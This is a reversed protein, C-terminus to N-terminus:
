CRSRRCSRACGAACMKSTPARPWAFSCIRPRTRLERRRLNRSRDLPTFVFPTTTFSRIGQTVVLVQAKRSGIEATDGLGKSGLRDLYSQDIAVANPISLADLTGQILNWPRLGPGKTDSGIVFVPTTGGGPLRWQAFGILIPAVDAVGKVSLARFRQREDLLSPDEFNKTGLPIIWLDASAHDIMTTVMRGFSVFLGMQVTVLVISFVIGVITAIFRLKDHFLNRYALKFILPM